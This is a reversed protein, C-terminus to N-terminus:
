LHIITPTRADRVACFVRIQLMTVAFPVLGILAATLAKGVEAAASATAVGHAFFVRALPYATVAMLASVPVLAVVTLRTGLSLDNVLAFLDRRAASRSLRPMLVTLLAVGLV